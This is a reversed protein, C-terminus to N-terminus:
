TCAHLGVTRRRQAGTLPTKSTKMIIIIFQHHHHHHHHHHHRHIMRSIVDIRRIPYHLASYNQSFLGVDTNPPRYVVGVTVTNRCNGDTVLRSNLSMVNM